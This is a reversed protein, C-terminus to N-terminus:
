HLLTKVKKEETYYESSEIAKKLYILEAMCSAKLMPSLLINKIFSNFNVTNTYTLIIQNEYPSFEFIKIQNFENNYFKLKLKKPPISNIVEARLLYNKFLYKAKITFYYKNNIAYAGPLEILSYFRDFILSRSFDIIFSWGKDLSSNIIINQTHKIM